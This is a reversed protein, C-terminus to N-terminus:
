PREAIGSLVSESILSDHDTPTRGISEPPNWEPAFLDVRRVHDIAVTDRHAPLREAALQVLAPLPQESGILDTGRSMPREGDDLLDGTEGAGGDIATLIVEVFTRQRLAPHPALAAATLRETLAIRRQNGIQLRESLRRRHAIRHACQFPDRLAGGLEGRREVLAAVLHAGVGDGLQELRLEFVRPLEIALRMLARAMRIAVRLELM